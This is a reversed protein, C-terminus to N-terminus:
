NTGTGKFSSLLYLTDFLATQYDRSQRTITRALNDALNRPLGYSMVLKIFRKRNRCRWTKPIKVNMEIAIPGFVAAIVPEASENSTTIELIGDAETLGAIPTGNIYFTGVERSIGEPGM